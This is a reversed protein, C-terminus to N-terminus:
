PRFTIGTGFAVDSKREDHFSTIPLRAKINLPEVSFYKTLQWSLSAEYHGLLGSKMGYAGTDYFLNAKQKITMKPTIQWSHKVGAYSYLGNKLDGTPLQFEFRVFPTLLHTRSLQIPKSAESYLVFADYGSGRFIKFCDYYSLGLDLGLGKINGAWGLTYDVEDGYNSSLKTDDLGMSHWIDFYFGRPLSIFLDTQLVAGSHIESGTVGLYNSWVKSSLTASIEDEAAVVGIVIGLSIIAVLIVLVSTKEM